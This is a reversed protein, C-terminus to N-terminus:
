KNKGRQRCCRGHGFSGALDFLSTSGCSPCAAIETGFTTNFMHGCDACKIRNGKFHINGGEIQLLRGSILFEAMKQRAQEILRTFTSRSIDMEEAAEAHGMGLFDALRIAEYQDLSLNMTQLNRAPVGTPKFNCFLPPKEVLRNKKPRPM